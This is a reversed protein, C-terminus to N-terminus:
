SSSQSRKRQQWLLLAFLVFASTLSIIAGVRVSEPQSLFEVEHKGKPVKVSRFTDKYLKIPTKNGNIRAEWGPYFTDTLVLQSEQPYDTRVIVQNPEYVLIEAPIIKNENLLFARPWASTNEYILVADKKYVLKFKEEELPAIYDQPYGTVIYRVGLVDLRKDALDDINISNPRQSSDGWFNIYNTPIGAAYGSVDFLGEKIGQNEPLAKLELKFRDFTQLENGTLKNPSFPERARLHTWYVGLGTYPMAGSTSLYRAYGAHQALWEAAPITLKTSSLPATILNGRSFIFLEFIALLLVTKVFWSRKKRYIIFAALAVASVILFNFILTKVIIEVKQPNYAPSELLSGGKTVRYIIELLNTTAKTM